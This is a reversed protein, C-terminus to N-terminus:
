ETLYLDKKRRYIFRMILSAPIILAPIGLAADLSYTSIGLSVMFLVPTLSTRFYTLRIIGKDIPKDPSILRGKLAHIWMGFLM